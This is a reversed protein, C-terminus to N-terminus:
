WQGALLYNILATVDAITVKTDLNCDAEAIPESGSLLLNILATVDTINVNTDRNVDGRLVQPQSMKYSFTAEPLFLVYETDFSSYYYSKYIGVNLGETPTGYFFTQRYNTTGAETILCDVLLNGGEYHYPENLLFELDMSDYVPVVTAVVTTATDLALTTFV